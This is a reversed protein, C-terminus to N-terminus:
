ENMNLLFLVLNTLYTCNRLIIMQVSSTDFSKM